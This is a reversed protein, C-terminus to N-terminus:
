KRWLIGGLLDIIEIFCPEATVDNRLCAYNAMLAPLNEPENAQVAIKALADRLKLYDPSFNLNHMYYFELSQRRLEERSHRLHANQGMICAYEEASRATKCFDFSIHPHDGATITPVGLYAMEHAVTGYVTVACSIGGEALQRNSTDPSLFEAAPFMRKLRQVIETSASVQNPHPKLFIKLKLSDAIRLTALTWEWFDAYVMWRYCHPSDFFDHLFVVVAGCVNPMPVASQSYASRSMYATASDLEGALRSALKKDAELLKASQGRLLGFDRRYSDPNRLHVWDDSKLEKYIEQRNGFSFVRIGFRLAVRAAIGHQIYTSYSTLYIVPRAKSFYAKARRIDRVVQWIIVALYFDRLDMTPAPKFRLYSDYILDGVPIDECELSLVDQKTRLGRWIRFAKRFDRVSQFPPDFGASRYALRDCFRGYLRSWKADTLSNQFIFSKVFHWLSKSAGYRLSRLVFQDVTLEGRERLLSVIWDFLALYYYNEVCQVLVVPAGSPSPLKRPHALMFARDAEGMFYRALVRRLLRSLKSKAALLVARM